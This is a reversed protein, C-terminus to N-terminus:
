MLILILTNYAGTSLEFFCDTTTALLPLGPLRASAHAFPSADLIVVKPYESSTRSDLSLVLCM